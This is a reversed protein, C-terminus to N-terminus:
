DALPCPIRRVDAGLGRLKADLKQYGRDVHHMGEVVTVGEAALGALILAAGARLDTATVPVGFLARQADTALQGYVSACNGVLKVNAGMLQLEEVHRLRNEFVTERVTSMGDAHLLLSMFQAQMDTPFGPYPLTTIDVPMLRPAPEIRLQDPREMIVKCGTAHLKAIIATIHRPIVPSLSITSNTIAGAVLFTGAEIRDPIITFDTAHLKRVGTVSICNTGAGSIIAGMTTLFDALDVVEPEQAVNWITTEGEALCAAMMLTETAGVSPYDMYIRAGVLKKARAHVKGHSIEIEAGLAQLGKIHLDIPRAGINCGGPLPLAAEGLRALLPGIAFFSARLKRVAAANPECSTLHSADIRCTEPGDAGMEFKCGVSELVKGMRHCDKLDPVMRLTLPEPCLLAGAMVALASNKAGSIRVHGQLKARGGVELCESMEIQTFENESDAANNLAGSRSADSSSVSANAPNEGGRPLLVSKVSISKRSSHSDIFLRGPSYRPSKEVFSARLKNSSGANGRIFCNTQSSLSAALSAHAITAM